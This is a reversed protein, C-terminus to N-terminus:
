GNVWVVDLQASLFYSTLSIPTPRHTNLFVVSYKELYKFLLGKIVSFPLLLKNRM